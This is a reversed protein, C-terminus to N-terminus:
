QKPTPNHDSQKQTYRMKPSQVMGTTNELLLIMLKPPSHLTKERNGKREAEGSFATMKPVIM